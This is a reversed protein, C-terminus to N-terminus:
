ISHLCPASIYFFSFALDALPREWCAPNWRPLNTLAEKLFVILWRWSYAGAVESVRSLNHTPQLGAM